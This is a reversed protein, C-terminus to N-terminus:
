HSPASYTRRCSLAHAIDAAAESRLSGKTTRTNSVRCTNLYVGQAVWKEAGRKEKAEASEEYRSAHCDGALTASQVYIVEGEQVNITLKRGRKVVASWVRAKPVNPPDAPKLAEKVRAIGEDCALALGDLGFFEAEAKIDELRSINSKAASPLRLSRM